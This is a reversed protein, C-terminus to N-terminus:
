KKTAEPAAEPNAAIFDEYLKRLAKATKESTGPPPEEPFEPIIGKPVLIRETESEHGTVHVLLFFAMLKAHSWPMTIASHQVVVNPGLTQDLEGLVVKLDWSSSLFQANNVYFEAFDERRKYEIGKKTVDTKAPAKDAKM